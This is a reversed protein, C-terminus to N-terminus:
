VRRCGANLCTKIASWSEDNLSASAACSARAAQRRQQSPPGERFPIAVPKEPEIRPAQSPALGLDTRSDVIDHFSAV